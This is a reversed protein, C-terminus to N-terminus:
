AKMGLNSQSWAIERVQKMVWGYLYRTSTFFIRDQLMFLQLLCFPLVEHYIFLKVSDHSWNLRCCTGLPWQLELIGCLTAESNIKEQKKSILDMILLSKLSYIHIMNVWGRLSIWDSLKIFPTQFCFDNKWIKYM